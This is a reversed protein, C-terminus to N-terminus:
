LDNSLFLRLVLLGTWQATSIGQLEVFSDMSQFVVSDLIQAGETEEKLRALARNEETVKVEM